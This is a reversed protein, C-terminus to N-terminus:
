HIDDQGGITTVADRDNELLLVRFASPGKRTHHHDGDYYEFEVRDGKSIIEGRLARENFYVNGSDDNPSIFDPKLFGFGMPEREKWFLVTGHPM